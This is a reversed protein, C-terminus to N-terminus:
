CRPRFLDFVHNLANCPNCLLSNSGVIIWCVHLRVSKQHSHNRWIGKILGEKNSSEFTEVSHLIHLKELAILYNTTKWLYRHHDFNLPICLFAQTQSTAYKEPM